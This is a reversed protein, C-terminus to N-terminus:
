AKRTTSWFSSTSRNIPHRFSRRSIGRDSGVVSLPLQQLTVDVRESPASGFFLVDNAEQGDSSHVAVRAYIAKGPDARVEYPPASVTGIKEEGLYFDVGTVNLDPPKVIAASLSGAGRQLHVRFPPKPDNVVMEDEGVLNNQADYGAVRIRLRRVYDGIQVPIVVSRGRAERWKVGNVFLEVRVVPESTSAPVYLTGHVLGEPKQTIRVPQAIAPPVIFSLFLLIFAFRKM